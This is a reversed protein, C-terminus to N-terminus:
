GNRQTGAPRSVESASRVTPSCTVTTAWTSRASVFTERAPLRPPERRTTVIVSPEAVRVSTNKPELGRDKPM